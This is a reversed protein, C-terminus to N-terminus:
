FSSSQLIYGAVIFFNLNFLSLLKNKFILQQRRSERTQLLHIPNGACTRPFRLDLRESWSPDRVRYVTARVEYSLHNFLLFPMMKKWGSLM